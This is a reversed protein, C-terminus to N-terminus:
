WAEARFSRDDKFWHVAVNARRTVKIYRQLTAVLPFVREVPLKRVTKDILDEDARDLVADLIQSENNQLGQCLLQLLSDTRPPTTVQDGDKALLRARCLYLVSPHPVNRAIEIIYAYREIM